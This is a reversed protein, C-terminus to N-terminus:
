WWNSTDIPVGVKQMQRIYCGADFYDKWVAVKGDRVLWVACCPVAMKEGRFTWRDIREHFVRNGDTVANLTDHHGNQIPEPFGMNQDVMITRLMDRGKIQAKPFAVNIWEFDDTALALADKVNNSWYANLFSEVTQLPTGAM